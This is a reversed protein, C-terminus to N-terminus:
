VCTASMRSKMSYNPNPITSTPTDHQRQRLTRLTPRTPKTQFETKFTQQKSKPISKEPM